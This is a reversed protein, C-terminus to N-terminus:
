CDEAVPLGGEAVQRAAGPMRKARIVRLPARPRGAPWPFFGKVM